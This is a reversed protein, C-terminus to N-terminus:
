SFRQIFAGAYYEAPFSGTASCPQSLSAEVLLSRGFYVLFPNRADNPGPVSAGSSALAMSFGDGSVGSAQFAYNEPSHYADTPILFGVVSRYDATGTTSTFTHVVGDITVRYTVTGASVMCPAFIHSLVGSGSSISAITNYVGGSWVTWSPHIEASGPTRDISVAGGSFFGTTASTVSTGPAHNRFFWGPNGQWRPLKVPSDLFPGGRRILDFSM